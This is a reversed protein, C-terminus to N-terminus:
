SLRLLKDLERTVASFIKEISPKANILKVRGPESRALERFGRAVRRFFAKSQSELRDPNKGRRTLATAFPLDFVFTLDPRVDGVAITHLKKVMSLDLGRGYGQYATTSDYFRDCLITTGRALLPRMEREVVEARAAEYLLLETLDSIELTPDLLIRRIKESVKTSGPERLVVVELGRQELYQASKKLQTTKGSGDIGEFTILRGRTTKSGM